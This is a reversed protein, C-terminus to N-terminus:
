CLNEVRGDRHERAIAQALRCHAVNGFLCPNRPLRKIRTVGVLVLDHCRCHLQDGFAHDIFHDFAHCDTSVIPSRISIKRSQASRGTREVLDLLHRIGTIQQDSAPFARHRGMEIGLLALDVQQCAQKVDAPSASAALPM